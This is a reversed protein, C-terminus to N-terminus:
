DLKSLVMAFDVEDSCGDIVAYSVRSDAGGAISFHGSIELSPVRIEDKALWGKRISYEDTDGDIAEMGNLHFDEKRLDSKRGRMREEKISNTTTAHGLKSVFGDKEAYLKAILPFFNRPLLLWKDNGFREGFAANLRETYFNRAKAFDDRTLRCSMDIHVEVRGTAPRFVISDFAQVFGNRVGIVEDYGDLASRASGDLTNLDIAERKRFARKSCVFVRTTGDPHVQVHCFVGNFSARRIKSDSLPLPFRESFESTTDVFKGIEGAAIKAEKPEVDFISVARTGVLLSDLYIARAEDRCEILRDRSASLEGYKVLLPPWGTATPLKAAKLRAKVLSVPYCEQRSRLAELYQLIEKKLQAATAGEDRANM